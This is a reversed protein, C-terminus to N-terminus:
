YCFEWMQCLSGENAYHNQLLWGSKNLSMAQQLVILRGAFQQNLAQLLVQHSDVEGDDSELSQLAEGLVRALGSRIIHEGAGSISCAMGSRKSLSQQAWCGAGYVAAQVDPQTGFIANNRIPQLGVEGVRGSYKLLM